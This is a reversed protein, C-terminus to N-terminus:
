CLLFPNTLSGELTGLPLSIVSQRVSTLLPVRSNEWGGRSAPGPPASRAGSVWLGGRAALRKARHGQLWCGRLSALGDPSALQTCRGPSAPAPRGPAAPLTPRRARPLTGAGGPPSTSKWDEPRLCGTKLTTFVAQGFSM